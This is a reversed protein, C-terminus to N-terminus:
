FFSVLILNIDKGNTNPSLINPDGVSCYDTENVYIRKEHNAKPTLYGDKNKTMIDHNVVMVAYGSEDVVNPQDHVNAQVYGNDNEPKPKVNAIVYGNEDEAIQGSCPDCSSLINFQIIVIYRATFVNKRKTNLEVNVILGNLCAIFTIQSVSQSSPHYQVIQGIM